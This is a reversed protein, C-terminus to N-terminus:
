VIHSTPNLSWIGETVETSRPEAAPIFPHVLVLFLHKFISNNFWDYPHFIFSGIGSSQAEESPKNQDNALLSIKVEKVTISCKWVSDLTILAIKLDDTSYSM